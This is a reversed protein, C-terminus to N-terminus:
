EESKSERRARWRATLAHWKAVIAHWARAPASEAKAPLMRDPENTELGLDASLGQIREDLDLLHSRAHRCRVQSTTFVTSGFVAIVALLAIAVVRPAARLYRIMIFSAVICAILILVSRNRLTQEHDRYSLLFVRLQQLGSLRAWKDDLASVKIKEEKPRARLVKDVMGGTRKSKVAGNALLYDRAEKAHALFGDVRGQIQDEGSFDQSSVAKAIGYYALRVDSDTATEDLDLAHLAELRNM